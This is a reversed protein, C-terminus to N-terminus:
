SVESRPSVETSGRTSGTASSTTSGTTQLELPLMGTCNCIFLDTEVDLTMFMRMLVHDYCGGEPSQVLYLTDSKVCICNTLRRVQNQLAKFLDRQENVVETGNRNMVTRMAGNEIYHPETGLFACWKLSAWICVGDRNVAIQAGGPCTLWHMAANHWIFGGTEVWSLLDM